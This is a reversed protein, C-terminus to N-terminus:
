LSECAYAWAPTESVSLVSSDSTRLFQLFGERFSYLLTARRRPAESPVPAGLSTGEAPPLDKPSMSSILRKNLGQQFAAADVVGEM